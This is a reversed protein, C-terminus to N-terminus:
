VYREGPIKIKMGANPDVQLPGWIFGMGLAGRLLYRAQTSVPRLERQAREKLAEYEKTSLPVRVYKTNRM